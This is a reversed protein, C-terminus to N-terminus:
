AEPSPPFEGELQAGTAKQFVSFQGHGLSFICLVDTMNIM